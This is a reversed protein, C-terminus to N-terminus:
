PRSVRRGPIQATDLALERWLARPAARAALASGCRELLARRSAAAGGALVLHLLADTDPDIAHM